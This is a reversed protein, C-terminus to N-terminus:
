FDCSGAYGCKRVSSMDELVLMSWTKGTTNYVDVFLRGRASDAAISAPQDGTPLMFTALKKGVETYVDITGAASNLLYVHAMANNVAMAAPTYTLAVTKSIADTHTAVIQLNNGSTAFLRSTISDIAMVTGYTTNTVAFTQSNIERSVGGSTVYLNGSDPSVVPPTLITGGPVIPSSLMGFTGSSFVWVPDNGKGCQSAVWMRGKQCDFTVAAPCSGVAISFIQSNTSGGYININGASSTGNWFNDESMDVSVGSSSSITTVVGFTKGDIVTLSSGTSPGGGTYIKNLAPNVAIQGASATPIAVTALINQAAASGPFMSLATAFIGITALQRFGSQISTM